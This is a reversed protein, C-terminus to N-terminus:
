LILPCSAGRIFLPVLRKGNIPLVLFLMVYSKVSRLGGLHKGCPRTKHEFLSFKRSFVSCIFAKTVIMNDIKKKGQVYFLLIITEPIYFIM